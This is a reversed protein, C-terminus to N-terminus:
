ESQARRPFQSRTISTRIHASMAAKLACADQALVADVISRHRNQMYNESIEIPKSYSLFLHLRSRIKEWLELLTNNGALNFFYEHFALDYVVADYLDGQRYANESAGTLEDLQDADRSQLKDACLDIAALELRERVFYVEELYERTIETVYTGKFPYVTLLGQDALKVFAHRVPTISVSLEKAIKAEVLREGMPINKEIIARRVTECVIDSTSRHKDLMNLQMKERKRKVKRSKNM